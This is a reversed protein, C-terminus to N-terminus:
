TVAPIELTPIPQLSEAIRLLPIVVELPFLDFHNELLNATRRRAEDWRAEAGPSDCFLFFSENKKM